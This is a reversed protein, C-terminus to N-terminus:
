NVSENTSQSVSNSSISKDVSQNGPQGVSQNVPPGTSQSIGEVWNFLSIKWYWSQSVLRWILEKYNYSKENVKMLLQQSPFPIKLLSVTTFLFIKVCKRWPTALIVWTMYWSKLKWPLQWNRWHFNRVMGQQRSFPSNETHCLYNKERWNKWKTYALFYDYHTHWRELPNPWRPLAHCEALSSQWFACKNRHYASWWWNRFCM